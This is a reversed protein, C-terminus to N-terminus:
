FPVSRTRLIDPGAKPGDRYQAVETPRPSAVSSALLAGSLCVVSVLLSTWVELPSAYSVSPVGDWTLDSRALLAPQELDHYDLVVTLM